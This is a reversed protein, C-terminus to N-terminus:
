RRHRCFVRTYVEDLMAGVTSYGFKIQAERAIVSRDFTSLRDITETLGRALARPDGPAVVSGARETVFEEPGGCATVVVPVGSALAEATVVSFTEVRSPLIFVDAARMMNAVETKPLEGHFTINKALGVARVASECSAAEPGDGVVDLHWNRGRWAVQQLASILVDLGKLKVLSSVALLRLGRSVPPSPANFRFLETDIVNPVVQFAGKIGQRMLSQQLAHSVPLVADALRFIARAQYIESRSLIGRPFASWHESIVVPIRSLRGTLLAAWGTTFVHAHVLDPQGHDKALQKVAKYVSGLYRAFSLVRLASPRFAVHYSAVGCSLGEDQRTIAWWHPITPDGNGCHLVIVNHHRQVAKAYERVFVGAYRHEKTPYWPTLFVINMADM